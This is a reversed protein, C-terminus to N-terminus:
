IATLGGDVKLETGTIFAAQDSLLFLIAAAIEEAEAVRGLPHLQATRSLREAADDFRRLNNLVMPTRVSGPCVCNVRIGSGAYEAALYKTLAIVGGKSACYASSGGWGILGSVSALNVVSGRRASAMGPLFGRCCAFVGKLNVGLVADWFAEDIEASSGAIPNIGANAVLYRPTGHSQIVNATFEEVQHWGAV